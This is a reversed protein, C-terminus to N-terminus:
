LLRPTSGPSPVDDDDAEVPHRRWPADKCRERLCNRREPPATAERAATELWLPLPSDGDAAYREPLGQHLGNPNYQAPDSGDEELMARVLPYFAPVIQRQILETPSRLQETRDSHREGCWRHNEHAPLPGNHQGLSEHLETVDDGPKVLMADVSM